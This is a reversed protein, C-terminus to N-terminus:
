LNYRKIFKKSAKFQKNSLVIVYSEYPLATIDEIFVNLGKKCNIIKNKVVQGYMNVISLVTRNEKNSDFKITLRNQSVSAHMNPSYIGKRDTRITKTWEQKDDKYVVKLRYYSTTLPEKDEFSYDTNETTTIRGIAIFNRGDESRQLEFYDIANTKFSWKIINADVEKWVSFNKVDGSLVVANTASVKYKCNSGSTGDVAVFIKTGAPLSTTTGQVIGGSGSGSACQSAVTLSSCTGTFFGIQFGPNSGVNSNDCVIDSITIISSGNAEVTFQYFATNELTLACVDSAFIGPGPTHCSNNDSVPTNSIPTAGLCDDNLPTYSQGAIQINTATTTKIRVYYTTNSTLIYDQASAWLGTGDDFCMSSATELNNAMNGSCSTYLAIECAQGDSATINLLPCEATANTTFSFWTIPTTGNDTCVVNSGTSSSTSYNRLVGDLTLSIPNSCADGQSLAQTSELFFVLLLAYTKMAYPFQISLFNRLM